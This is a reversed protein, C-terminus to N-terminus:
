KADTQEPEAPHIYIVRGDVLDIRGPGKGHGCCSGFMDIGGDQLAKVVPAICRDINWDRWYTEGHHSLSADTKLYLTEHTGWECM